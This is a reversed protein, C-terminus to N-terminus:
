EHAFSLPLFLFFLLLPVFRFVHQLYFYAYHSSNVSWLSLRYTRDLSSILPCPLIEFTSSFLCLASSAGLCGASSGGRARLSHPRRSPLVRRRCRFTCFYSECCKGGSGIVGGRKKKSFLTSIFHSLCPFPFPCMCALTCVRM